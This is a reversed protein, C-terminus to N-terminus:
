LKFKLGHGDKEGSFISKMIEHNEIQDLQTQFMAILAAGQELIKSTM